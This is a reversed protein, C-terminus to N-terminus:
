LTAGSGNILILGQSTDDAPVPFSSPVPGVRYREKIQFDPQTGYIQIYTVMGGASGDREWAAYHFAIDKTGIVSEFPGPRYAVPNDPWRQLVAGNADVVSMVNPELYWWAAHIAYRQGPVGFIVQPNLQQTTVDPVAIGTGITQAKFDVAIRYTTYDLGERNRYLYQARASEADYYLGNFNSTIANTNYPSWPNIAARTWTVSGDSAIQGVILHTYQGRDEPDSEYLFGAVNANLRVLGGTVARNFADRFTTTAIVTGSTPNIVIMTQNYPDTYDYFRIIAVTPSLLVCDQVTVLDGYQDTGSPIAVAPGAPVFKRANPM